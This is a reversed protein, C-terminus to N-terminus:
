NSCMASANDVFLSQMLPPSMTHPSVLFVLKRLRAGKFTEVEFTIKDAHHTDSSMAMRM